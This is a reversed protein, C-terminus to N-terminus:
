VTISKPGPHKAWLQTWLTEHFVQLRLVIGVGVASDLSAVLQYSSHLDWITLGFIHQLGTVQACIGSNEDASVSGNSLGM